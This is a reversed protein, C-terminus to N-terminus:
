SLPTGTGPHVACLLSLGTFARLSSLGASDRLPLYLRVSAIHLKAAPLIELDIQSAFQVLGFAQRQKLEHDIVADTIWRAKACFPFSCDIFM